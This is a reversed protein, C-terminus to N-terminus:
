STCVPVMFFTQFPGAASFGPPGSEGPRELCGEVLPEETLSIVPADTKGPYTVSRDSLRQARKAGSVLMAQEDLPLTLWWSLFSSYESGSQPVSRGPSNHSGLDVSVFTIQLGILFPLDLDVWSAWFSGSDVVDALVEEVQGHGRFDMIPKYARGM